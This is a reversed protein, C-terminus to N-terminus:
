FWVFHTRLIPFFVWTPILITSRRRYSWIVSVFGDQLFAAFLCYIYKRLILCYTNRFFFFGSQHLPRKSKFLLNRLKLESLILKYFPCYVIMRLTISELSIKRFDSLIHDYVQLVDVRGGVAWYKRQINADLTLPAM